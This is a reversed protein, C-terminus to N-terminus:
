RHESVAISAVLVEDLEQPTRSQAYPNQARHAAPIREGRIAPARKQAEHALTWVALPRRAQISEFFMRSDITM